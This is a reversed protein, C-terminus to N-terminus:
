SFLSFRIGNNESYGICGTWASLPSFLGKFSFRRRTM